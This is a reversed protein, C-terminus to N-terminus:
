HGASARAAAPNVRRILLLTIPVLVAAFIAWSFFIDIYAMLAAQSGVLQAIYGIARGQAAAPSGSPGFNQTLNHVASQFVPSAPSMSETLRAQHFQSRQALETAALSVGISGGLNRAVNILASGENTKQPPLEAYAISNIPIFMFPMGLTQLVRVSAFYTFSADPVLSTSVWMGVAILALGIALWYKPQMHPIIQGAIPMLLLMTLGGPMMALGSLMATYPFNTQMLQPTVQNSGFLLAGVALMVIFAMAFQRHFLLRIDVIPDDRTLEWPIFFIFSCAAITAFTVITASSFWDDLQGRDLVIELSGFTLAILAFGIWDVKLGGALREHRERELVEPEVVLWQVLILSLIGFPVNIFFIWHWSYNDTLWGGITPGVTPAVIVAIGYIAFAQPRKAPPFTDTLMAQESTPMGGGGLGQLIRFLILANLSSALGCLLSAITFVAVCIMYFRKRGIVNSLWGSVPLVVANAILYTTVVWTSEDVSIALSGAIYRLAVNAIATDLVVMFTAISVVLAILYPSRDGAASRSEPGSSRREASM